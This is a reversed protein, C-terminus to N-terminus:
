EYGEGIDYTLRSRSTYGAASREAKEANPMACIGMLGDRGLLCGGLSPQMLPHYSLYLELGGGALRSVSLSM